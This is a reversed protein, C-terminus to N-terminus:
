HHDRPPTRALGTGAAGARHDRARRGQVVGQGSRRDRRGAASDGPLVRRLDARRPLRQRQGRRARRQRQGSITIADDSVEVTVDDPKVGPLDARVVLENGRQVVDVETCLAGSRRQRQRQRSRQDDGTEPASRWLREAIDETLFRQLLAFPNMATRNSAGHRPREPEAASREQRQTATEHTQGAADARHDGHAAPPRSGDRQNVPDRDRNDQTWETGGSNIRRSRHSALVKGSTLRGFARTLSRAVAERRNM